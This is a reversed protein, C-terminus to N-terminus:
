FILYLVRSDVVVHDQKYPYVLILPIVLHDISHLHQKILGILVMESSGSM